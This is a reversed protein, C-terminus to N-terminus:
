DFLTGQRPDEDGAGGEAPQEPEDLRLGCDALYRDPRAGYIGDKGSVCTTYGIRALFATPDDAFASLLAFFSDAVPETFSLVPDMSLYFVKGALPRGECEGQTFLVLRTGEGPSSAFVQYRGAVYMEELGELVWGMKNALQATLGDWDELPHICLAPTPEGSLLDPVACLDVGNWRSYFALLEAQLSPCAATKNRLRELERPTAPTGFYHPAPLVYEDREAREHAPFHLGPAPHEALTQFSLPITM